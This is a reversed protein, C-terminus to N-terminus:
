TWVSQPHRFVNYPDYMRKVHRLRGANGGYYARMYDKLGGYPFNVYSGATVNALAPYYKDAWEMLAARDKDQAWVSRIEAIYGADRYYFSTEGHGKKAVAGGLAYLTYATTGSGDPDDRLSELIRRIEGGELPRTVFRGASKFMEFPPCGDEM